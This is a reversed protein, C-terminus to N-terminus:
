SHEMLPSPRQQQWDEGAGQARRRMSSSYMYLVRVNSEGLFRFSSGRCSQREERNAEQPVAALLGLAVGRIIKLAWM